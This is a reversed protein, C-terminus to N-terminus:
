EALVEPLQKVSIRREQDVGDSKYRVLIEVEYLMAGGRQSEVVTVPKPRVDEIIATASNWNQEIDELHKHKFFFAAAIFIAILALYGCIVRIRRWDCDSRPRLKAFAARAPM